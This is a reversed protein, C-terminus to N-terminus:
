KTFNFSSVIKDFESSYGFNSNFHYLYGSKMVFWKPEQCDFCDLFPEVRLGEKGGIFFTEEKNIGIDDFKDKVIQALTLKSNIPEVKIELAGVHPVTEDGAEEKNPQFFVDAPDSVYSYWNEPFMVTYGYKENEYSQWGAIPQSTEPLEVVPEPTRPQTEILQTEIMPQEGCGALFIVGLIVVSTKIMKQM